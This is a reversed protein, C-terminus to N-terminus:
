HCYNQGAAMSVSWPYIGVNPFRKVVERSEVDFIALEGTSSLPLLIFKGDPTTTATETTGGVDIKADLAGTEADLIAIEEQFKNLVYASGPTLASYNVGYSEEDGHPVTEV